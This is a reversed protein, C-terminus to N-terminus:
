NETISEEIKYGFHRGGEEEFIVVKDGPMLSVVSKSNGDPTVIRITEANQLVVSFTKLIGKIEIRLLPRKELKIRGAVSIYTEGKYNVVLMEDGAKLDSLYRTRGDTTMIYCHVAGANVRFPRSAVYPNELSESNVLVMGSSYDGVLMGEGNTMNAITDICVRDGTILKTV